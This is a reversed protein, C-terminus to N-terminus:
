ALQAVDTNMELCGFNIPVAPRGASHLKWAAMSTVHRRNSPRCGTHNTLTVSRGAMAVSVRPLGFGILMV